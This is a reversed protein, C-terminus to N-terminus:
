EGEVPLEYCAAQRDNRVLLLKGTLCLTNWTKESLAPFRGLEKHAKPNAEVLAVEGSEAQVLILDEVLMIQGHGYRGGKWTREGTRLNICALIRDDLGYAYDGRVVVNCFKTKMNRNKWVPNPDARLTGGADQNIQIVATGYSYAGNILVRYGPLVTPQSVKPYGNTWPWDYRWLMAGSAPEYSAVGGDDICLIQPVGHLTALMPSAYCDTVQGGNGTAWKPEGSERDFAMVSPGGNAGGTVVVTKELVLPSCSVGWKTSDAGNERLVHRSWAVQGTAADLCNLRGTGGMTYVRGDIVTPTARPGDGGVTSLFGDEDAHLWVLKGTHLEYCTVVEHKDRQEQTFAFDGVVAFASWGGGIPQKWLLKPPRASWDRALRIGSVIGLREPGLFQPYDTAAPEVKISATPFQKSEASLSAHPRPKWRWTWEIPIMDGDMEEVRFLSLFLVAPVVVGAAAALRWRWGLGSFVLLWIFECIAGVGVVVLTAVLRIARPREWLGWLYVLALAVIVLVLIPPLWRWTPHAKPPLAQSAAASLPQDTATTM